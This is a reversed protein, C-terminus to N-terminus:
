EEEYDEGYDGDEETNAKLAEIDLGYFADRVEGSNSESTVANEQKEQQVNENQESEQKNSKGYIDVLDEIDIRCPYVKSYYETNINKPRAVKSLYVVGAIVDRSSVHVLRLKNRETFAITKAFDVYVAKVGNFSKLKEGKPATVIFFKDEEVIWFRDKVVPEYLSLYKRRKGSCKSLSVRQAKGSPYLITIIQSYDGAPIVKVIDDKSELGLM